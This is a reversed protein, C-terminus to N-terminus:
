ALEEDAYPHTVPLPAYACRLEAASAPEVRLFYRHLSSSLLTRPSSFSAISLSSFSLPPLPSSLLPLPPPLHALSVDPGSPTPSQAVALALLVAPPSASPFDTPRLQLSPAPRSASAARGNAGVVQDQPLPTTGGTKEAPPQQQVPHDPSRVDQHQPGYPVICRLIGSLTGSPVVRLAGSLSLTQKGTAASCLQGSSMALFLLLAASHKATCALNASPEGDNVPASLTPVQVRLPGRTSRRAPVSTCSPGGANTFPARGNRGDLVLRWPSSVLCPQNHPGSPPSTVTDLSAQSPVASAPVRSRDQLLKGSDSVRGFAGQGLREGGEQGTRGWGMGEIGEMDVDEDVDCRAWDVDRLGLARFREWVRPRGGAVVPLVKSCRQVAPRRVHATREAGTGATWAWPLGSAACRSGCRAHRGGYGTRRM